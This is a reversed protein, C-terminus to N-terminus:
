CFFFFCFTVYYCSYYYNLFTIHHVQFEAEMYGMEAAIRYHKYATAHDIACVDPIGELYCSALWYHVYYDRENTNALEHLMQYALEQNRNVNGWGHLYYRAVMLKARCKTCSRQQQQQEENQQQICETNDSAREFWEFADATRRHKLMLEATALQAKGQHPSKISAAKTYYELATAHNTEIGRGHEYCEGVLVYAMIDGQAAARFFWEVALKNNKNHRHQNHPGRELYMLGLHRQARSYGAKASQRLYRDAEQPNPRLGLGGFHYKIALQFQAAANDRCAAAKFYFAATENSQKVGIGEEYM